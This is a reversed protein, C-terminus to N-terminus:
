VVLCDVEVPSEHCLRGIGTLEDEFCPTLAKHDASENDHHADGEGIHSLSYQQVFEDEKLYTERERKEQVSVLQGRGFDCESV